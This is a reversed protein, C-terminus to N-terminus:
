VKEMKREKKILYKMKQVKISEGCKSCKVLFPKRWEKKLYEYNGCNPCIYEVQAEGNIVLVKIKGNSGLKRQTHYTCDNPQINNKQIFERIKTLEM